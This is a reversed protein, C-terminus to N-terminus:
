FNVGIKMTLESETVTVDLFEVDGSEAESAFEAALERNAEEIKAPDANSITVNALQVNLVGDTAGIEIDFGGAQSGGNDDTYTGEVRIRGEQFDVATISDMMSKGDSGITLDSRQLISDVQQEKLVVDVTAGSWGVDVNSIPGCGLVIFSCLVLLTSTLFKPGM